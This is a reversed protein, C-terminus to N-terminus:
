VARPLGAAKGPPRSPSALAEHSRSGEKLQAGRRPGAGRAGACAAKMALWPGARESGPREPELNPRKESGEHDWRRPASLTTGWFEQPRHGRRRQSGELAAQTLETPQPPQRRPLPPSTPVPARKGAKEGLDQARSPFGWGKEPRVTRRHSIGVAARSRM